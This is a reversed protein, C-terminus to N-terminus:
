MKQPNNINLIYKLPIFSKVMCEAQHTSFDPDTRSVYHKKVACFDIKKLDEMSGGISHGNATANINSFLTDHLCAVEPNIKLLVLNAGDQIHRYAMPHDDCFSLRVYDQLGYLSDLIRSEPSGGPHPIKINKQECSYWSYLGGNQMISDLNSVDTFHYFFDIKNDKLTKKIHIWDKKIEPVIGTTVQPDITTQTVQLLPNQQLVVTLPTVPNVNWSGIVSQFATAWIEIQSQSKAAISYNALVEQFANEWQEIQPNHQDKKVLSSFADKWKKRQLLQQRKKEEQTM